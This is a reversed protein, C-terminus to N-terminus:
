ESKKDFVEKWTQTFRKTKKGAVEVQYGLKTMTISITVDAKGILSELEEYEYLDGISSVEVKKGGSALEFMMLNQFATTFAVFFDRSIAGNAPADSRWELQVRKGRVLMLGYERMQMKGDQITVFERTLEKQIDPAEAHSAIPFVILMLSLLIRGM